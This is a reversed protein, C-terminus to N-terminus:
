YDNYSCFNDKKAYTLLVYVAAYIHRSIRASRLTFHMPITKFNRDSISYKQRLYRLKPPVVPLGTTLYM